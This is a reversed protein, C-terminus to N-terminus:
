QTFDFHSFAKKFAEVDQKEEEESQTCTKWDIRDQINLLNALAIRLAPLRFGFTSFYIFEFVWRGYQLDFSVGPRMYHVLVRGDPLEVRFYNQGKAIDSEKEEEFEVGM